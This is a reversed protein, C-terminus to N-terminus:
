ARPLGGVWIALAMGDRGAAIARDGLVAVSNVVQFGISLFPGGPQRVRTWTGGGDASAWVAGDDGDSGVIVVNQGDAAVHLALQNGAGGLSPAAVAEWTTGDSSTWLQADGDRRRDWGVALVGTATSVCSKAVQEGAGRLADATSGLTQWAVGDSSVSVLGDQEAGRTEYGVAAISGGVGCAAWHFQDNSGGWASPPSVRTWAIGDASTWAQADFETANGYHFGVAVLGTGAEAVGLMVGQGEPVLAPQDAPVRTWSAGDPSTWVMPKSGGDHIQGVAVVGNRWRTAASVDANRFVGDPDPRRMWSMGDVSTWLAVSRTGSEEDVETAFLVLGAPGTTLASQSLSRSARSYAGAEPGIEQWQTPNKSVWLSPRATLVFSLVTTTGDSAFAGIQGSARKLDDPIDEVAWLRDDSSITRWVITEFRSAVALLPGSGALRTISVGVSNTAGFGLANDPPRREWARGDPSHWVMPAERGTREDVGAAVLGTRSPVVSTFRQTGPGSATAALPVRQWGVGDASFWIAGDQSDGAVAGVAVMGDAGVALGTITATPGFDSAASTDVARWAVGDVSTLLLPFVADSQRSTGSAVFGRTGAAALSLAQDGPSVDLAIRQWQAGDSSSWVVPDRDAPGLETGVAISRDPRRAVAVASGEESPTPLNARQWREADGSSWLAPVRRGAAYDTVTGVGLWGTVGGGPASLGEIDALSGAPAFDPQRVRQWSAPGEEAGRRAAPAADRLQTERVAAVIGAALVTVVLVGVLRAGKTRRRGGNM